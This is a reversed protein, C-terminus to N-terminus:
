RAIVFFIYEVNKCKEIAGELKIPISYIDTNTWRFYTCVGSVSDMVGVSELDSGLGDIDSSLLIERCVKPDSVSYRFDFGKLAGARDAVGMEEGYVNFSVGGSNNDPLVGAKRLLHSNMGEYNNKDAYLAKVSIIIDTIEKTALNVKYKAMAMSYGALAGVGLVGVIALVGLMEIMSRGSQSKNAQKVNARM